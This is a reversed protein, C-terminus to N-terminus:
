ALGPAPRQRRRRLGSLLYFALILVVVFFSVPWGRGVPPWYFSDYALVIGLWTAAVAIAVATIMATVPRKTLRLATAAPGILLATSLIAGITIASLAVALSTAALYCFGVLRVPVGRSAAMDANLSSLLLMRYCPLVLALVLLGCLAAILATRHDIVFISGFLVTISAGTTSSNTTDLYLFLAALGLVGGLVIGTAVDRGRPRQVGIMEMASTAALGMVVFGWIPNVGLLFAGSGGTTAVDAFTHGAFSQGRIVTFVGVPGSVIAVVAGLILAVHVAPSEFFGAEFVPALFHSM